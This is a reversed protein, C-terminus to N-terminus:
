GGRLDFIINADADNYGLVAMRGRAGVEDILGATLARFIEAVTLRRSGKVREVDWEALLLSQERPGVGASALQAGASGADLEHAIYLERVLATQAKRLDRASAADEIALMVDAEAGLVGIADLHAVAEDYSYIEERYAQRILSVSEDKIPVGADGIPNVSLQADDLSLLFDAVDAAEGQEELFSLAAERTIVHRRYGQRITAASLDKIEDLRTKQATGYYRITFQTLRDANQANYGLDRYARNVEQENIVGLKYIRRIDVRTLPNYSINLLKDRFFPLYATLGLYQTIDEETIFGRHLMEFIQQASPLDWHARWYNRTWEETYGIQRMYDVVQGPLESYQGYSEPVQLSWVRKDAMRTLDAASPIRHRLAELISVPGAGYGLGKLYDVAGADSILGRNWVDQIQEVSPIAYDVDRAISHKWREQIPSLAPMQSMLMSVIAVAVFALLKLPSKLIDIPPDMLEDIFTDVTPFEGRVMRPIISLKKEFFDIAPEFLSDFIFELGDVVAKFAEQAGALLYGPIKALEDAVPKVIADYIWSAASSFQAAIFDAMNAFGHAAFGLLDKVRDRIWNQANALAAGTWDLMSTFGYRAFGLLDKVRDLIWNQANALAAATWDLMSAFGYRAFGLLDTVRDRIWNQANALAAATWDLMSAFGYRAFGLLDKVRDRIWNQVNALADGIWDVLSAYGKAAYGLFEWIRDKIWGLGDDRIRVWLFRLVEFSLAFLQGSTFFPNDGYQSYPVQLDAPITWGFAGLVQRYQLRALVNLAGEAAAWVTRIVDAIKGALFDLVPQVGSNVVTGFLGGLDDFLGPSAGAIQPLALAPAPVLDATFDPLLDAWPNYESL